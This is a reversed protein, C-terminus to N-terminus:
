FEDEDEKTSNKKEGETIVLGERCEDCIWDDDCDTRGFEAEFVQVLAKFAMREDEELGDEEELEFGATRYLSQWWSFPMAITIQSVGFVHCGGAVKSHNM